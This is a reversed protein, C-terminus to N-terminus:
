EDWDSERNALMLADILDSVYKEQGITNRGQTLWIDNYGDMIEQNTM